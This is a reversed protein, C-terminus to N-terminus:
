SLQICCGYSAKGLARRMGRDTNYQPPSADSRSSALHVRCPKEAALRHQTAYQPTNLALKKQNGLVAPRKICPHSAVEICINWSGLRYRNVKSRYLRRTMLDAQRRASKELFTKGFRRYSITNKEKLLHHSSVVNLQIEFENTDFVCILSQFLCSEAAKERPVAAQALLQQGKLHLCLCERCPPAHWALSSSSGRQFSRQRLVPVIELHM